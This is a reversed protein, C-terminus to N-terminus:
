LEETLQMMSSDHKGLRDLLQEMVDRFITSDLNEALMCFLFWDGIGCHREIQATINRDTHQFRKGLVYIRFKSRTIISITFVLWASTLTLLVVFWFWLFMYIKANFVNLPLVCLSDYRITLGSPGYKHFTCKVMKPFVYATPDQTGEDDTAMFSLVRPGYSWFEGGLFHDMFFMQGIINMLALIECLLYRGAWWTHNHMNEQLYEVLMEMKRSKEEKPVFAINLDMRLAQLKGGEWNKWLWRPIYFLIAQFFFSLFVWPYYPLFRISGKDKLPATGPHVVESGTFTSQAWCQVNLVDLPFESSSCSIPKKVYQNLGVILCFILLLAVTASHHLRFVFSDTQVRQRRFFTFVSKFIDLM